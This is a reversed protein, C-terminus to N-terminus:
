SRELAGLREATVTECKLDGYIVQYKGDALKWRLLVEGSDKPGVSWGYYAADPNDRLIGNIIAFGSTAQMVKRYEKSRLDDATPRGQIGIFDFMANRTVDGYVMRVKPYDGGSLEAYIALAETMRRLQEGLPVPKPTKDAYGQPPDTAFLKSDLDDNWQFDTLRTITPVGGMKMRYEILVPLQTRSDIWIAATGSLVDPDIKVMAIEFGAAKKGQIEDTGLDRNAKGAFKGLNEMMMLPPFQGQRAAELAYTRKDHDVHLGKKGLPFILTDELKGRQYTEMRVSGPALWYFKGSTAEPADVDCEFHMTLVFSRAQRIGATMKEMASLSKTGSVSWIVLIGITAALATGGLAIRQRMTTGGIWREIRVGLGATVPAGRTPLLAMLRAKAEEHGSEFRAHADTLQGALSRVAAVRERCEACEDLHRALHTSDDGGVALQVIQERSLCNM